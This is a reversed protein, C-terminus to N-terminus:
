ASKRRASMPQGGCILPNESLQIFICDLDESVQDLVDISKEKNTPDIAVRGRGAINLRVLAEVNAKCDSDWPDPLDVAINELVVKQVTYNTKLAEFFKPIAHQRFGRVGEEMVPGWSRLTYDVIANQHRVCDYLSLDLSPPFSDHSVKVSRLSSSLAAHRLVSALADADDAECELTKLDSMLAIAHGLSQIFSLPPAQDCYFNFNSFGLSQLRSREFTEFLVACDRLRCREFAIGKLQGNLIMDCLRQNADETTFDFQCLALEIVNGTLPIMDAILERDSIDGDEEGDDDIDSAYSNEVKTLSVKELSPITRIAPLLMPWFRKFINLKLRQLSPHQVVSHALALSSSFEIDAGYSRIGLETIQRLSLIMCASATVEEPGGLEFHAIALTPIDGLTTCLQQFALSSLFGGPIDACFTVVTIPASIMAKCVLNRSDRDLAIYNEFFGDWLFLRVGTDEDKYATQSTESADELNRIFERYSESTDWIIDLM